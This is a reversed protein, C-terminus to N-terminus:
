PRLFGQSPPTLISYRDDATLSVFGADGGARAIMEAWRMQALEAPTASYEWGQKKAERSVFVAVKKGVMDPTITVTRWGILDASKLQDNLAKSDNALGYRVPRDHRDRLVGVNNRWLILGEGAAAARYANSVATESLATM